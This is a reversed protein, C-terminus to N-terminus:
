RNWSWCIKVFARCDLDKDSICRCARCQVGEYEWMSIVNVLVWSLVGIIWVLNGQLKWIEYMLLPKRIVGFRGNWHRFESCSKGIYDNRISATYPLSAAFFGDLMPSVPLRGYDFRISERGQSRETVIACTVTRRASRPTPTPFFAASSYCLSSALRWKRRPNGPSLSVIATKIATIESHVFM